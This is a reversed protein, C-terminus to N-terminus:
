RPIRIGCFLSSHDVEMIETEVNFGSTLIQFQRPGVTTARFGDKCVIVGRGTKDRDIEGVLGREAQLEFWHLRDKWFKESYSSFLIMGGPKTVRISEKMLQKKDVHFASIGNQICVVVDFTRDSFGLHVANTEVLLCNSCNKLKEKALLLSSFSVDMGIVFGAKLSLRPMIRGFGCGMDLVVDQRKIKKLVYDVEAQLYQAVRPPAIEYCQKLREASLKDRYYDKM